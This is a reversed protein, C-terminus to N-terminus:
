EMPLFTKDLAQDLTILCNIPFSEIPLNTEDAADERADQYCMEFTEYLHNKLFPSDRLFREIQKRAEKIYFLWSNSRKETQYQWKLWHMLLRTLQSRVARKESRGMDEIEEVLHDIDVENFRHQRLLSATYELWALYDKEYLSKVSISM